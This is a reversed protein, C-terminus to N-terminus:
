NENSNTVKVEIIEVPPLKWWGRAENLHHLFHHADGGFFAASLVAMREVGDSDRMSTNVAPRALYNM